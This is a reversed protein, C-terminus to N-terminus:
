SLPKLDYGIQELVTRINDQTLKQSEIFVEKTKLDVKIQAEKDNKLIEKKIASECHGCTMDPVQFKM